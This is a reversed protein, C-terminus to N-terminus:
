KRFSKADPCTGWHPEMTGPDLPIMKGKPTKWWEIEAGCKDSQCKGVGSFTYGAEKLATDSKPWDKRGEV